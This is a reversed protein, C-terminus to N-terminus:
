DQNTHWTEANFPDNKRPDHSSRQCLSYAPDPRRAVQGRDTMEGLLSTLTVDTPAAQVATAMTVLMMSMWAGM